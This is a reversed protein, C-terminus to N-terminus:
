QEDSSLVMHLPPVRVPYAIGGVNILNRFHERTRTRNLKRKIGDGEVGNTELVNKNKGNKKKSDREDM